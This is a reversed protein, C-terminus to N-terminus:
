FRYDIGLLVGGLKTDIDFNGQSYDVDMYRYGFQIASHENLRYGMGVHIDSVWNSSLDFGGVMASWSTFWHQDLNYIGKAGIMLDAWQKSRNDQINIPDISIDTKVSWGRVGIMLDSYSRHTQQIRYQGALMLTTLDLELAASLPGASAGDKMNVYMGDLLIGYDGKRTELLGMAAFDVSKFIDSFSREVTVPRLDPHAATTDVSTAWGYLAVRSTWTDEVAQASLSSLLLSASILSYNLHKSM